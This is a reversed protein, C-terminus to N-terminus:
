ETFYRGCGHRNNFNAKNAYKGLGDMGSFNRGTGGKKDSDLVEFSSRVGMMIGASDM